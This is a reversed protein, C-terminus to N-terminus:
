DCVLQRIKFLQISSSAFFFKEEMFPSKLEAVIEYQEINKWIKGHQGIINLPLKIVQWYFCQSKIQM